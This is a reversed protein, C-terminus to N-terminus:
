WEWFCFPTRGSQEFFTKFIEPIQEVVPRLDCEMPFGGMGGGGGM